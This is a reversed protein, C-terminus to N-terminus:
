AAKRRRRSLRERECTLCERFGRALKSPVLNSETLEHMRPCHSKAGNAHTGHRVSDHQNASRSDWRLNSLRNNVCDGDLHCAEAGDPRPGVFSILVLVHVAIRKQRGDRSLKVRLRGDRHVAQTLLRGAVNRVRGADSVRYRSWGPVPVWIESAPGM